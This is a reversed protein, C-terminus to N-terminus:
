SSTTRREEGPRPSPAPGAGLEKRHQVEPFEYIIVGEPTIDSRVRFGDDMGVLVKEAVPLSLNLEAAVETVTLAGGRRTALRLVSRQLGNMLAQRRAEQAKWGWFFAGSGGAGFVSGVVVMAAEAEVIGMLIMFTAFLILLAGLVRRKVGASPLLEEERKPSLARPEDQEGPGLARVAADWGLGCNPCVRATRRVLWYVLGGVGYTFLSVGVLMGVHGPRSFYSVGQGHYGCRPCRKVGISPTAPVAARRNRVAAGCTPCRDQGPELTEGCTSCRM